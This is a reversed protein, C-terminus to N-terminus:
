SLMSVYDMIAFKEIFQKTFNCFNTVCLESGAGLPSGRGVLM